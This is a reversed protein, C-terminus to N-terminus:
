RVPPRSTQGGAPVHVLGAREATIRGATRCLRAVGEVAYSPDAIVSKRMAALARAYERQEIHLQARRLYKRALASSVPHCYEQGLVTSLLELFDITAQCQRGPQMGSWLGNRHVRYVGLVAPFYRVDGKMAHLIYLAWDSLMVSKYWDPLCKLASKRLMSACAGVPVHLLLENLRIMREEDDGCMRYPERRGDEHMVLVDHFSVTCDPHSEMFRAQQELKDTAHWYDDGDLCAIYRATSNEFERAFAENDNKNVPSLEVRMRDPWKSELKRLIDQTGDTSCDDLVLLDFPFGTDQAMVSRVAQEIYAAHNYALMIVRVSM